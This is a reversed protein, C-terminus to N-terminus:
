SIELKGILKEVELWTNARNLDTQIFQNKKTTFVITKIGQEHLRKQSKVCDDIMVDVKKELCAELKELAKFVIDDYYINNRKLYDFTIDFIDSGFSYGRATILVIKHGKAILRDIVEKANDKLTYKNMMEAAYEDLFERLRGEIRPANLIVELDEGKFYEAAYERITEASNTLTDDIDIGITM